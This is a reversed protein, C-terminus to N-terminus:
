QKIPFCITLHDAFQGKVKRRKKGSKVKVNIKGQEELNNLVDVYNSRIYPKDINHKEFLEKMTIIKGSFDNLLMEQLDNLPRSLEFLLPYKESAPSYEFSPVGENVISSEKAMINKMISYGKPHKSVFILHHSTRSGSQNKFRFPLVYKGGMDKLANCIAEVIMTERESPKLQTLKERISDARVEGFLADLHHKVANNPLGMNIRNYNFFFICDSGWDKVVSNILKLSLGKYGYPDVFFLTPVLKNKEFQKVIDEGVVENTVQPQYKLNQINELSQIAEELSKTNDGDLDNFLTVLTQAIEPDQIAKELVKIPTSKSGDKYRGPGAFLDIYAIRPNQPSKKRVTPLVVKAWVEFYKKVITAKVLSQERQEDFFDKSM